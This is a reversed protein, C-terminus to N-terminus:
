APQRLLMPVHQPLAVKEAARNCLGSRVANMETRERMWGLAPQPPLERTKSISGEARRWVRQGSEDALAERGRRAEPSLVSARDVTM